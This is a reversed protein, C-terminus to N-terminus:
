GAIGLDPHLVKAWQISKMNGTAKEAKVVEVAIRHTRTLGANETRSLSWGSSYDVVQRDLTNFCRYSKMIKPVQLKVVPPEKEAPNVFFRCLEVACEDLTMSVGTVTVNFGLFCPVVVITCKENLRRETSNAPAPFHSLKHANVM